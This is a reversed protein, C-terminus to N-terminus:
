EGEKAVRGHRIMLEMWGVTLAVINPPHKQPACLEWGWVGIPSQQAVVNYGRKKFSSAAKEAESKTM